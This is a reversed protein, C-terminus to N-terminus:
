WSRSLMPAPPMPSTQAGAIGVEIAIDGYFEQASAHADACLAALAEPTLRQNEGPERVGADGRDEVEVGLIAGIEQDHFVHGAARELGADRGSGQREVVKGPEALGDGLCKVASMRPAHQM